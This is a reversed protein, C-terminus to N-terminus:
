FVAGEHKRCRRPQAEPLRGAPVPRHAWSGRPRQGGGQDARLHHAQEHQRYRRRGRHHHEAEEEPRPEPLLLSELVLLGSFPGLTLLPSCPAAAAPVPAGGVVGLGAGPTQETVLVLLHSSNLGPAGM